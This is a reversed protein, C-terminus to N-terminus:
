GSYEIAAWEKYLHWRSQIDKQAQELLMKAREPKSKTLMKFRTENYAYDEYSISPEKSDLKLPNKGEAAMLPNFRFLPYHGSEVARKQEEMGKAMTIGHAICHSYALIISPGDYAEAENFARV